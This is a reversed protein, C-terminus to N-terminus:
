SDEPIELFAKAVDKNTFIEPCRRGAM